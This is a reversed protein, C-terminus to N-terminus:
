RRPVVVFNVLAVNKPTQHFPQNPLSEEFLSAM